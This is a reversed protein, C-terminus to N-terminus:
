VKEEATENERVAEAEAKAQNAEPKKAKGYGKAEVKKVNIWPMGLGIVVTAAALGVSLWFVHTISACYIQLAKDLYKGGDLTTFTDRLNIAGTSLVIQTANPVEPLGNVFGSILKQNFLAQSVALFVAGGFSQAFAIISSAISVDKLPMAAQAATIPLQFALGVGIGTLAQYGIWHSHGTGVRLTTLLGSGVALLAPGVIMYPVYYGSFSTLAGSLM